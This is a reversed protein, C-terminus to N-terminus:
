LRVAVTVPRRISLVAGAVVKVSGPEGSVPALVSDAVADSAPEPRAETASWYRDPPSHVVIQACDLQLQDM